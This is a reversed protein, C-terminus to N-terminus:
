EAPKVRSTGPLGPFSRYGGVIFYVLYYVSYISYPKGTYFAYNIIKDKIEPIFLADVKSKKLIEIDSNNSSTYNIYEENNSFQIPNVFISVIIFSDNEQAKEILSIHGKHIAGM